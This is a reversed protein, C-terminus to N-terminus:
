RRADRNAEQCEAAGAPTLDLRRQLERFAALRGERNHSSSRAGAQEVARRVADQRSIGWRQALDDLLNPTTPDLKLLIGSGKRIM